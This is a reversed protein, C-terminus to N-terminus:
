TMPALGYQYGYRYSRGRSSYDGGRFAAEAAVGLTGRGGLLSFGTPVGQLRDEVGEVLQHRGVGGVQGLGTDDQGGLDAVQEEGVGLAVVVAGGVLPVPVEELAEAGQVAADRGAIGLQRM